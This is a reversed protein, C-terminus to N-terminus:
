QQAAERTSRGKALLLRTAPATVDRMWPLVAPTVAIECGSWNLASNTTLLNLLLQGPGAPDALWASYPKPGVLYQGLTFNCIIRFDSFKNALYLETESTVVHTARAPDGERWVSPIAVGRLPLAMVRSGVWKGKGALPAYPGLLLLLRGALLTPASGGDPAFDTIAALEGDPAKLLIVHNM